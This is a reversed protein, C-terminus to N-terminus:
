SQRPNQDSNDDISMQRAEAMGALLVNKSYEDREIAWHFKIMSAAEEYTKAGRDHADAIANAEARTAFTGPDYEVGGKFDIGFGPYEPNDSETITRVAMANM